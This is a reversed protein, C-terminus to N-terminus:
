DQDPRTYWFAWLIFVPQLLLRFVHLFYPAPVIEQNQFLYINAPFVAIFLLIMGWAAMARYKNILLMIGLVIEIVGSFYIMLDHGPIYPPMIRRMFDLSTFHTIGVYILFGSLLYMLVM